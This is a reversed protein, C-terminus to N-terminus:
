TAGIDLKDRHFEPDHLTGLLHYRTVQYLVSVKNNPPLTKEYIAADLHASPIVTACLRALRIMCIGTAYDAVM